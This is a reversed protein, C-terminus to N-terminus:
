IKELHSQLREFQFHTRTGVGMHRCYPLLLHIVSLLHEEGGLQSCTKNPLFALNFPGLSKGRMLLINRTSPKVSMLSQGGKVSHTLESCMEGSEEREGRREETSELM